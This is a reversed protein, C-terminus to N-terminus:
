KAAFRAGGLARTYLLRASSPRPGEGDRGHDRGGAGTSVPRRL